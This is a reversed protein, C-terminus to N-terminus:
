GYQSPFDSATYYSPYQQKKAALLGANARQGFTGWWYPRGLQALAYEVLGTNTKSM